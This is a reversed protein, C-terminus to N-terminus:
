RNVAWGASPLGGSQCRPGGVAHSHAALGTRERASTDAVRLVGVVRRWWSLSRRENPRLMVISRDVRNALDDAFAGALTRWSVWDRSTGIVVLSSSRAQSAFAGTVDAAVVRDLEIRDSPLVAALHGSIEDHFRGAAVDDDGPREITLVRLTADFGRALDAALDVTQRTHLGPSAGVVLDDVRDPLGYDKVVAVDRDATRLVEQAVSGRVNGEHVTGHWGLVILDAEERRATTNIVTLISRGIGVVTSLQM